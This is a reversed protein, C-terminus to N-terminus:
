RRLISLNYIDSAVLSEWLEETQDIIEAREGAWHLARNWNEGYDGLIEEDKAIDRLFLYVVQGAAANRKSGKNARIESNKLEPQPAHNVIGAYGMPVVLYEPTPGPRAGFKYPNAYATCRDSVSDRKVMVGIIELFDGQQLDQAAFLGMGANPITSEAIYFRRDTEEILIM